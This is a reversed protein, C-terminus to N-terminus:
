RYYFMNRPVMRLAAKERDEDAALQFAKEYESQLFLVREPAVDALKVSLHSRFLM